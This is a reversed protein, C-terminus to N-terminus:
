VKMGETASNMCGRFTSATPCSGDATWSPCFPLALISTCISQKQGQTLADHINQAKTAIIIKRNM